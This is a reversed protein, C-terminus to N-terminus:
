RRGDGGVHIGPVGFNHMSLGPILNEMKVAEVVTQLCAVEMDSLVDMWHLSLM